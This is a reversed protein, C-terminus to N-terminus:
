RCAPRLRKVGPENWRGKEWARALVYRLLCGAVGANLKDCFSNQRMEFSSGLLNHSILQFAGDTVRVSEMLCVIKHRDAAQTETMEELASRIRTFPM